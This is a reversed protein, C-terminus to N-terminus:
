RPEKMALWGRELDRHSTNWIYGARMGKESHGECVSVLHWRDSKARDAMRAEDKVHDLEIRGACMGSAPDVQPAICGGDRALVYQAEAPDVKDDEARRWPRHPASRRLGTRRILPTRKM